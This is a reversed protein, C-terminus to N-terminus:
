NYSVTNPFKNEFGYSQLNPGIYFDNTRLKLSVKSLSNTVERISPLGYKTQSKIDAHHMIVKIYIPDVGAQQLRRKMAHRHGHPTTGLERKPLSGYRRVAKAHAEQFDRLAYPRGSKAVFAFPHNCDIISRQILYYDWLYKFWEGIWTPFWHVYMFNGTKSELVPNKWGAYFRDSYYKNRPRMQWRLRLYQERNKFKISFVADGIEDNPSSGEVPHFVRVLASNPNYPDPIVDQVYIHGTESLRLGGFHMLLTILANRLNIRDELRPSYRKGPVVFGNFILNWIDDEPFSPNEERNYKPQRKLKITRAKKAAESAREAKWGHGLFANKHRHHYAAWYIMQEYRTSERVPNISDSDTKSSYWDLFATLHNVISTVANSSLPTWGLGSPDLGDDGITGAYLRRTFTAFLDKRDNFCQYNAETYQLLLGVANITKRMWKLSYFDIKELFYDILPMFMGRDTLMAPLEANVGSNDELVQVTITIYSM